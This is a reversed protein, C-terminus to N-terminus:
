KAGGELKTLLDKATACRCSITHGDGWWGLETCNCNDRDTQEELFGKVEDLFCQLGTNLAAHDVKVFEDFLPSVVPNLPLKQEWGHSSCLFREVQEEGGAVVPRVEVIDGVSLAPGRYDLVCAQQVESLYDFPCNTLHFAEKAADVGDLDSLYVHTAKRPLDWNAEFFCPRPLIATDHDQTLLTIISKKM